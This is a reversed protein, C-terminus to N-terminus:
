QGSHDYGELEPGLGAFGGSKDIIGSNDAALDVLPAIHVSIKLALFTAGFAM